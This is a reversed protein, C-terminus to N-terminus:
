SWRDSLQDPWGAQSAAAFQGIMAEPSEFHVTEGDRVPRVDPDDLNIEHWCHDADSKSWGTNELLHPLDVDLPAYFEGQDLTARLALIQEATFEGAVAITSHQKYNDGDRYMVSFVTVTQSM